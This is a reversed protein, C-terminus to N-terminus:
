AEEVTGWYSLLPGVLPASVDVTVFFHAEGEGEARARLRPGFRPPLRVAVRGLCLAVKEQEFRICEGAVLVRLHLELLGVREM